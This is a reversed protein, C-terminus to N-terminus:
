YVGNDANTTEILSFDGLRANVRLPERFNSDCEPIDEPSILLEGLKM